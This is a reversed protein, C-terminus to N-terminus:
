QRAGNRRGGMGSDRLVREACVVDLGQVGHWRMRRQDLQMRRESM